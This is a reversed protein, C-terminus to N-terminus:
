SIAFLPTGTSVAEANTVFVEKITGSATATVENMMKMSEIICLVDGVNVQQGINVFPVAEPSPSQYFVGAMPAKMTQMASQASSERASSTVPPVAVPATELVQAKSQATMSIRISEDGSSVELEAVGSEEVLEILKKIKRLDM